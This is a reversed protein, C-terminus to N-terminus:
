GSYSDITLYKIISLDRQYSKHDETLRKYDKKSMDIINSFKCIQSTVNDSIYEEYSSHPWDSPDKAIDASTPNLHIYRTLHLLQENHSVMVSKFRGSWLPGTRKHKTNFYKSYSNLIRAMFKTIGGDRTQKLVLHIHTPMFCFAIIEVLHDNQNEIKNVVEDQGQLTLRTFHSYRFDFNTHRYLIILQYLREYEDKDNFVVFKAISRTFIHYYYGTVLAEKRFQAMAVSYLLKWGNFM